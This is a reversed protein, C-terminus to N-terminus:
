LSCAINKSNEYAKGFYMVKNEDTNNNVTEINRNDVIKIRFCKGVKNVCENLENIKSDDCRHYVLFEHSLSDLGILKRCFGVVGYSLIDLPIEFLIKNEVLSFITKNIAEYLVHVKKKTINESNFVIGKIQLQTIYDYLTPVNLNYNLCKLIFFEDGLFDSTLNKEKFSHVLQSAKTGNETFKASLILCFLALTQIENFSNM